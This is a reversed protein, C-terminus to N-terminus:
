GRRGRHVRVHDGRFVGHRAAGHSSEPRAGGASRIAAAGAGRRPVDDAPARLRLSARSRRDSRGPPPHRSAVAPLNSELRRTEGYRRLRRRRSPPSVEFGLSRLVREVSEDPVDMGLLGGIRTRDFELTKPQHPRPYNDTVQGTPKGAGIERAAGVRPGDSPTARHSGHRTRITDVSRDETRAGQEHRSDAGARLVRGRVGGAQDGNHNGLERRGDRRRHGRANDADAIVLMDADAVAAQRRAHDHNRGAQRPAGQDSGGRMKALDFAHMPQGLELMVYNTIDVINSIPRVGNALLRDQMWQPSPGVTVDAMAAVYRGCLEPEEITVPVVRRTATHGAAQLRAAKSRALRYATAIERAIGIVSLCDPRNATVDFDMVVDDGHPELGELALGRVGMLTGIEEASATVDVFERIWSLPVKM